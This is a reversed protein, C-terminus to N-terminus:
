VGQVREYGVFLFVTEDRNPLDVNGVDGPALGHSIRRTLGHEHPKMIDKEECERKKIKAGIVSFEMKQAAGAAMLEREVVEM